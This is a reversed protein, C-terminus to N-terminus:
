KAFYMAGPKRGRMKLKMAALRNAIPRKLVATDTWRAKGIEELRQSQKSRVQALM